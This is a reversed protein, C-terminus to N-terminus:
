CEQIAQGTPKM